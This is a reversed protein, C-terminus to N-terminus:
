RDRCLLKKRPRKTHKQEMRLVDYQQTFGFIFNVCLCLNIGFSDKRRQPKALPMKKSTKIQFSNVMLVCVDIRLKNCVLIDTGETSHVAIM